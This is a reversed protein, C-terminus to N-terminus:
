TLCSESEGETYFTRSKTWFWLKKNYMMTLSNSNSKSESKLNKEELPVSTPYPLLSNELITCEEDEDLEQATFESDEIDMPIEDMQETAKSEQPEIVMPQNEKPLNGEKNPTNEVVEILFNSFNLFMIRKKGKIKEWSVSDMNM